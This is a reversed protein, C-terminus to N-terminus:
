SHNEKLALIELGKAQNLRRWLDDYRNEDLARKLQFNFDREPTRVTRQFPGASSVNEIDAYRWTRSQSKGPAQYVIRDRAVILKGHSGGMRHLHKVPIEWLPEVADDAVRAIFRRDLRDKLFRYADQFTGEGPLTFEQRVDAGLKWRSDKYTVILLKQPALELRQIDDFTWEWRHDKEDPERYSIGREGIVLVGSGFKRWHDHRVEYKLEQAALAAATILLAGIAKEVRFAM